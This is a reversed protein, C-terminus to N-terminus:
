YYADPSDQNGYNEKIHKIEPDLESRVYDDTVVTIRTQWKKSSSYGMYSATKFETTTNQKNQTYFAAERHRSNM